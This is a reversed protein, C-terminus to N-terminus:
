RRKDRSARSQKVRASIRLCQGIQTFEPSALRTSPISKGGVAPVRGGALLPAVYFVVEQALREDFLRGLTHGGGEVLVKMIGDQRLKKLVARLSKERVVLTRARQQDRFVESNKPPLSRPAWVVRLPQASLPRLGRLTLSPNDARVTGAGVLIADVQARLRMADARAATSTLWQGEGPPRTLRGDLSMGCKAIVWPLGSTMAWHFEPNIEACEAALVGATVKVGANRLARTGRGRHAPNPDTAGVVVRSIGAAVLAETCPPTRGHTCCPELTVYATAGRALQPRRLSRLAEVEAHPKGARRHWGRGIIKGDRVILCGVAPNPHTLGRARQALAIAERMFHQDSPM